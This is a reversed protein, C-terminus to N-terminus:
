IGSELSDQSEKRMNLCIMSIGDQRNDLTALM